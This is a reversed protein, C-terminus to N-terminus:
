MTWGKGDDIQAEKAQIDCQRVFCILSKFSGEEVKDLM